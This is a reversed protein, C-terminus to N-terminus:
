FIAVLKLFIHSKIATRYSHTYELKNTSYNLNELKRKIQTGSMIIESLTM